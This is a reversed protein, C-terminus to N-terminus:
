LETQIQSLEHGIALRELNVIQKSNNKLELEDQIRSM